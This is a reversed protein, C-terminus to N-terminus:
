MWEMKNPMNIIPTTVMVKGMMAMSKLTEGGNKDPSTAIPRLLGRLMSGQALRAKGLEPRMKQYLGDDDM